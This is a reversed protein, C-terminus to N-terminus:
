FIVFSSKGFVSFSVLKNLGFFLLDWIPYACVFRYWFINYIVKQFTFVFFFIKFVDLSFHPMVSILVSIQTLTCKKETVMSTVPPPVIIVLQQFSLNTLQSNSM